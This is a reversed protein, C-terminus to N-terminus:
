NNPLGLLQRAAAIDAATVGTPVSKYELDRKLGDWAKHLAMVGEHHEQSLYCCGPASFGGGDAVLTELDIRERNDLQAWKRGVKTVTVERPLAHRQSQPVWWLIQGETLKEM